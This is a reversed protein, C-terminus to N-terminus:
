LQNIADKLRDPTCHLYIDTVSISSHGLLDRVAEISINKEVLSVAFTHRLAHPHIGKKLNAKQGLQKILSRLRRLSIRQNRNSLFIAGENQFSRGTKKLYHEIAAGVEPHLPILRQKGRKAFRIDISMEQSDVDKIDLMRLENCRMGGYLFTTIIARNRPSMKLKLLKEREKRKLWRPLKKAKTM